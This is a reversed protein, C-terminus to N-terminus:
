IAREHDVPLLVPLVGCGECLQSPRCNHPTHAGSRSLLNLDAERAEAWVSEPVPQAMEPFAQGQFGLATFQPKLIPFSASPGPNLDWVSQKNSGNNRLCTLRWM